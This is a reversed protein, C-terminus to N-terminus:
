DACIVCTVTRTSPDWQALVGAPLEAACQICRDLRRLQLRKAAVAGYDVALPSRSSPTAARTAYGTVARPTQDLPNCRSRRPRFAHGSGHRSSPLESESRGASVLIFRGYRRLVGQMHDVKVGRTTPELGVPPMVFYSYIPRKRDRTPRLITLIWLIDRSSNPDLIEPSPPVAPLAILNPCPQAADPLSATTHAHARDPRVTSDNRSSIDSTKSTPSTSPPRTTTLTRSSGSPRAAPHKSAWLRTHAAPSGHGSGRV